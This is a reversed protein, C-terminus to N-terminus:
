MRGSIFSQVNYAGGHFGLEHREGSETRFAGAPQDLDDQPRIRAVDTGLLEHGRLGCGILEYHFRPRWSTSRVAGPPIEVGPMGPASDADVWPPYHRAPRAGGASEAPLWGNRLGPFAIDWYKM